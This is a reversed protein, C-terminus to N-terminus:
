DLSAANGWRWDLKKVANHHIVIMTPVVFLILISAFLIGIALSIALPVIFQASTSTEFILPMLGLSTTATTLFIPRFRREAAKLVAEECTYNGESMFRNYKDMLILSDNVVVGALAVVGFLSYFSLNYGLIFHGIFAGAAGFPIGALIIMPQSYSRLLSALLAYIILMALLALRGLSALSEREDGRFGAENIQLGVYKDKLAPLITTTLETEIDQPMMVARDVRGSVTVIRRGNVREISSYSRNETVTALATLPAETGDALRIRVDFFNVTSQREDEPYRVMVRLEERGRQIRQVEEGYFLQRLQIAVDAPSLGAALGAPTLEIDYQRKGPTNSDQIEYMAPFEEYRAKLEEVAQSLIADEQHTLEFAIDSPNGFFQSVYNLKEVGPIQGVENRWSRELEDASLKRLPEPNLGIQISALHNGMTVRGGGFPGGGISTQGGVTMSVSKFSNGQANENVREAASVLREAAAQTVEFPTGIPFALNASIRTSEISPLFEFRVVKFAVLSMALAFFLVSATITTKRYRIANQVQPIIVTERFTALGRSVARQISDLPWRSWNSGHTLHAPLILFAEILSMLLVTIVVIPVAQYFQSLFGSVLGLPAFAAMTTLVGVTVPAAVGSIGKRAAAIGKLGAEQEAIINEGVVVADDVVIGLVIVLALLTFFTFNVGFFDFFIFAGFFTIPVGMAVWTALRLDLMLVLFLFVLIFGLIGNRIMISLYNKTTETADDWIDIEIGKPPSYTALRTRIDQAIAIADESDSKQIKLFLSKKGNFEHILEDETFGDKIQAIDKLRLLSGNPLAKVIIDEFEEGSYSKKNTRLLLDGAKTRIEGSSLNLSSDRVAGAIDNISLGYSRLNEQKVEISIEYDKAGFLSVLSVSPISLLEQEILEAGQRLELDSLDSSVVLTMVEGVTEVRVIDPEEARRPPFDSLRKVAMEIDDRVKAQDVFDKLEVSVAGSNEYARSTVRKVGDIGIVAEEIRRTISEEVESPTAGPYPVTINIQGLDLTPFTQSTISSAAVFGGILMISMLVNAAVPNGAFYEQFRGIVPTKSDSLDEEM